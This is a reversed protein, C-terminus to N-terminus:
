CELRCRSCMKQLREVTCAPRPGQQRLMLKEYRDGHECHGNCFTVRKQIRADQRGSDCPQTVSIFATAAKAFGDGWPQAEEITTAPRLSLVQLHVNAKMRQREERTDLANQLAM